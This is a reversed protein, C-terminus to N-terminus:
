RFRAVLRPYRRMLEDIQDSDWPTGRPPGSLDSDGAPLDDGAVREYADPAVDDANEWDGAEADQVVAALSDPDRLAAEYVRRGLSILYARFDRFCDDSCGDEIVYAAGWMDWSYAQQDLRQRISGFEAIQDAPLKGLRDAILESQRETDGDADRRAAEVLQWFGPEGLRNPTTTSASTAAPASAAPPAPPPADHACGALGVLAVV